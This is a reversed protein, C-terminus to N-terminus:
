FDSCDNPTGEVHTAWGTKTSTAHSKAMLNKLFNIDSQGMGAEIKTKASQDQAASSALM